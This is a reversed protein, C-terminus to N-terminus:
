LSCNCNTEGSFQYLNNGLDNGQEQICTNSCQYITGQTYYNGPVFKCNDKGGSTGDGPCTFLDCSFLVLGFGLFVGVLVVVLIKNKM